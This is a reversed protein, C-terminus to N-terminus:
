QIRCSKNSHGFCHILSNSVHLNATVSTTMTAPRVFGCCATHNQNILTLVWHDLTHVNKMDADVDHRLATLTMEIFFPLMSVFKSRRLSFIWSGGDVHWHQTKVMWSQYSVEARPLRTWLLSGVIKRESKKSFRSQLLVAIPSNCGKSQNSTSHTISM